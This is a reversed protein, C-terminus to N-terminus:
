EKYFRISYDYSSSSSSSSRYVKLIIYGSDPADIVQPTAFGNTKDTFYTTITDTMSNKSNWYASVDNSTITEGTHAANAWQIVYRGGTVPFSYYHYYLSYYTPSLGTKWVGGDLPIPQTYASVASASLTGTGIENSASVKYFYQRFQNLGTDTYETNTTSTIINSSAVNNGTHRYVSYVKVGPVPDWSIKLSSDSLPEVSLGAPAAPVAITAGAAASLEGEVAGSVSAIKYYYTTGKTLGTHTYSTKTVATILTYTGGQSFAYYLNYATASSVASWSLNISSASAVTATFNAPVPISPAAAFAYASKEGEGAAGVASVKYYYVTGVALGTDTYGNTLSGNVFSYTGDASLSRYVSYSVVGSVEKWLVELSAAV